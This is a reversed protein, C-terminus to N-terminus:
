LGLRCKYRCRECFARDFLPNVLLLHCEHFHCLCLKVSRSVITILTHQQLNAGLHKFSCLMYMIFGLLFHKGCAQKSYFGPLLSWSVVLKIFSQDLPLPKIICSAM